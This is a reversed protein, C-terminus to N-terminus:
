GELKELVQKSHGEPNVKEFVSDIRGEQDIIFTTRIIGKYEHGFLKKDAWVGYLESVKHDEDALLTFPLNFKKIFKAEDEVTDPSVGLIM